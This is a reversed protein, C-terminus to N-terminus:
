ENTTSRCAEGCKTCRLTLYEINCEDWDHKCAKNNGEANSEYECDFETVAREVGRVSVVEPKYSAKMDGHICKGSDVKFAHNDDNCLLTQWYQIKAEILASRTTYLDSEKVHYYRFNFLFYYRGDNFNKLDENVITDQHMFWLSQGFAYKSKPQTMKELEAILEDIDECKLLCNSRTTWQYVILDSISSIMIKIWTMTKTQEYYKETLDHAIKLKDYDIM